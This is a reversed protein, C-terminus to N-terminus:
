EFPIDDELAPKSKTQQKTKPKEERPKFMTPEEYEKDSEYPVHEIIQLGELRTGPGTKTDYVTFCIIAVSGNGILGDEKIDWPTGDAHVVNPAGGLEPYLPHTWYRRFQIAKRGKADKLTIKEGEAEDYKKQYTMRSGSDKFIKQAEEDLWAVVTCAGGRDEWANNPGTKDRNQEFVKAWDIHATIYYRKSAM